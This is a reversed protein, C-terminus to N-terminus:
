ENTTNIYKKTKPDRLTTYQKINKNKNKKIETYARKRWIKKKEM